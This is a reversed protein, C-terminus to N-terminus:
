DFFKDIIESYNQRNEIDQKLRQAAQKKSEEKNQKSYEEISLLNLQQKETIGYASFDPKLPELLIKEKNTAKQTETNKQKIAITNTLSNEPKTKNMDIQKKNNEEQTRKVFDIQKHKSIVVTEKQSYNINEKTEIKEKNIDSDDKSRKNMLSTFSNIYDQPHNIQTKANNINDVEKNLLVEEKNNSIDILNEKEKEVIKEQILFKSKNQTVEEKFTGIEEKKNNEKQKEILSFRNNKNKDDQRDDRELDVENVEQKIISDIQKEKISFKSVEEQQNKNKKIDKAINDQEIKNNDSNNKKNIVFKRKNTKNDDKNKNQNSKYENSSSFLSSIKNFFSQNNQKSLEEKMREEKDIESQLVYNESNDLEVYNNPTKNESDIYFDAHAINYQTLLTSTFFFLSYKIKKNNLSMKM